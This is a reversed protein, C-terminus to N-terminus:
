HTKYVTWKGDGFVILWDVPIDWLEKKIPSFSIQSEHAIGIKPWTNPIKSLFRDYWGGGKGHRTGQMDFQTGPILIYAKKNKFQEACQAAWEFPDAEKHDPLMIIESVIKLPFSPDTYDIEGALPKYLVVGQSDSLIKQLEQLSTEM